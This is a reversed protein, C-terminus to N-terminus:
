ITRISGQPFCYIPLVIRWFASLSPPSAPLPPPLPPHSNGLPRSSSPSPSTSLSPFVPSTTSEPVDFQSPSSNSMFSPTYSAPDVKNALSGYSRRSLFMEEDEDEDEYEEKREGDKGGRQGEERDEVGRGSATGNRQKVERWPDHQTSRSYVIESQFGKPADINLLSYRCTEDSTDGPASAANSTSSTSSTSSSSSSSYSASSASSTSSTASSSFSSYSSASSASSASFSSFTSSSCNSSSLSSSSSSLAAASSHENSESNFSSSQPSTELVAHPLCTLPPDPFGLYSPPPPSSIPPSVSAYTPVHSSSSLLNFPTSPQPPPAHCNQVRIKSIARKKPEASFDSTIQDAEASRPSASSSSTATLPASIYTSSSSPTSSSTAELSGTLPKENDGQRRGVGGPPGSVGRAQTSSETHFRHIGNRKNDKRERMEFMSKRGGLPLKNKEEVGVTSRGKGREGERERGREREREKEREREREARDTEGAIRKKQLLMPPIAQGNDLLNGLYVSPILLM